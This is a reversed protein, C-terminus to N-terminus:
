RLVGKSSPITATEIAVAQRLARGLGKFASEIQHHANAGSARVHLTAGLGDALADLVHPVLETALDGVKERDLSLEVTAHRRGSLDLLVEARSEDMPLVFGFRAIGRRDGLARALAEGVLRATDEVTHHEDVHLDGRTTVRLSFGAHTAIQDLLHDFFGVGTDVHVDGASALDVEVRVDTERTTRHLSARRDPFLLARAIADWSLAGDVLFGPLGANRALALDAERDGVVASRRRDLDPDRLLDDILGTAPKRCPCGDGPLHPCIRVDAFRIGQSDLLDLLLRHPGEFAEEPFADTGLGDQNSVMVLEWGATAIRSLADIVGPVLRLKSFADIQHDSPEVLLTGDRDVFLIRREGM